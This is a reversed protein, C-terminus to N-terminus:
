SKKGRNPRARRSIVTHVVMMIVLGLAFRSHLVVLDHQEAYGFVPLMASLMTLMVGLGLLLSIWFSCKQAANLGTDVGFQHHRAWFLATGTLGIIVLGAGGMHILLPWGSFNGLLLKSGFGTAAQIVIGLMAAAHWLHDESVLRPPQSGPALAATSAPPERGFALQGFGDWAARILLLAIVGACIFGLWKFAPRFIFGVAWLRALTRDDGRLSIMDQIHDGTSAGLQKALDVDGAVYSGFYIPAESTHCDECGRIGLSQAGPRVDHALCWRTLAHQSDPTRAVVARQAVVRGNLDRGFVPEFIWPTTEVTRERSTLGLEHARSTQVRHPSKEPWPGSHCATCTLREFHLPPLGRHQPHPARLRGGLAAQISAAGAEGLHCGRCTLSSKTPQTTPSAEGDYGRTMAHDLGHRHCDVCLLGAALHVDEDTEWRQPADEGVIHTTHCFYCRENPVRRTINFFVRDDADFHTRDYILEPGAQEPFDPSPPMMPDWDDPVKRAEGRIVALGLAVTPIWKFNEKEIQNAAETPDHQMDAAHCIMCDIELKGSIGWRLAEDSADAIEDSPEGYGGGTMHRGFRMVMQWHSLKRDAPTPFGWPARGSIPRAFGTEEDILFWPEGPRGAPANPDPESFHWGRSIQTYDHCKSCTARPSYPTPQPDDPSIAIGDHDYLTLIHVYPTRGDTKLLQTGEPEEAHTALTALGITVLIAAAGARVTPGRAAAGPRRQMTPM